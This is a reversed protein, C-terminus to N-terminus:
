VRKNTNGSHFRRRQKLYQRVDRSSWLAADKDEFSSNKTAGEDNKDAMRDFFTYFGLLVIPGLILYVALVAAAIILGVNLM